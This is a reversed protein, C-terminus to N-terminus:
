RLRRASTIRLVAPPGAPDVARVWGAALRTSRGPMVRALRVRHLVREGQVVEIRADHLIERARVRVFPPPREGAVIANPVTWHLPPASILALPQPWPRRELARVVAAAVNRGQTAAVDAPEAGQVINGAALVGRVSTRLAADVVPGRTGPDLAAGAAVALEHDPIWDASLVVLECAVIEVAGTALDTLTVAEVAGHGHIATLATGTRLPAHYRARAGAAFAALTQHRPHETVIAVTRAGAHALTELASYSVHEAGAIVARGGLRAGDLHVLQQLTGTTMVGDPRDGAILRASRPRERCGTALVVAAAEIGVRGRPSTLELVLPGRWGTAQTRTMLEAGAASARDALRRAYEPGRLSRHLDRLGFGQHDAHRPIGGPEREREVVVVRGAGLRRLRAAATLGAPGGGVIVVDARDSV